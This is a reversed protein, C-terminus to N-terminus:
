SVEMLICDWTRDLLWVKSWSLSTIPPAGMVGVTRVCEGCEVRWVRVLQVCLDSHLSLPPLLSLSPPSVGDGAGTFATTASDSLEAALVM